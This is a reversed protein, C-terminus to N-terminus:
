QKKRRLRTGALGAIGTGLLLLTAPEPVPAPAGFTAVVLEEGPNENTVFINATNSFDSIAHGQGGWDYEYDYHGEVYAGSQLGLAFYYIDRDLYIAIWTNVNVEQYGGGYYPYSYYIQTGNVVLGNPFSCAWPVSGVGSTVQLLNNAYVNNGIGIYFGSFASSYNAGDDHYLFGEHLLNLYVWGPTDISLVGDVQIFADSCSFPIELDSSEWAEAFTGLGDVPNFYTRASGTIDAFYSRKPENYSITIAFSRNSYGILLMLFFIVAVVGRYKKMEHVGLPHTILFQKKQAAAGAILNKM